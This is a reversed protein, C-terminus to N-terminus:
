FVVSASSNWVSKCGELKYNIHESINAIYRESLPDILLGRKKFAVRICDKVNDATLVNLHIHYSDFGFSQLKKYLIDAQARFSGPTNIDEDTFDGNMVQVNLSLMVIIPKNQWLAENFLKKTWNFAQTISSLNLSDVGVLNLHSEGFKKLVQEPSSTPWHILTTKGPAPYKDTVISSILSKGVGTSGSLLIVPMQKNKLMDKNIFGDLINLLSSIAAGQGFVQQNLTFHLPELNASMLEEASPSLSNTMVINEENVPWFVRLLVLLVLLPVLSIIFIYKWHLQKSEKEQDKPSFNISHKHRSRSKKQDYFACDIKVKKHPNAIRHRHKVYHSKEIPGNSSESFEAVHTSSSSPNQLLMPLYRSKQQKRPSASACSLFSLNLASAKAEGQRSSMSFSVEKVSISGLKTPTVTERITYQQFIFPESSSPSMTQKYSQRLAVSPDSGNDDEKGSM